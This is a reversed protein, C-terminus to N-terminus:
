TLTYPASSSIPRISMKSLTLMNPPGHGEVEMGEVAVVEQADGRRHRASMHGVRGGVQGVGQGQRMLGVGAAGAQDSERFQAQRGVSDVIQQQLVGQQFRHLGRDGLQGLRGLPEIRHQHDARGQAHLAAEIVGSEGDM